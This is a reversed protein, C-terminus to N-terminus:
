WRLKLGALYDQLRQAIIEHDHASPHWDCGLFDLGADSYDWLAVRSDGAAKRDAVVQTAASVLDLQRLQDHRVVIVTNSGYRSRLTDLFGQYTSKWDAVLAAQSAWKENSNLATSFDNIGLGVVVLQPKWGSTNWVHQQVARWRRPYYARFNTDTNQGGYNRVM